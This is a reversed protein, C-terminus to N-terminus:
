GSRMLGGDVYFPQGTIFAADDSVDSVPFALTGALDASPQVRKIAQLQPVVDFFVAPGAGTTATRVLSPAIANVTIGFEALETALGRTLGVVALKVAIYHTFRPIVV